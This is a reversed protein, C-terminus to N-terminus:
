DDPALAGLDILDPLHRARLDLDAALQVAGAVPVDGDRARGDADVQGLVEDGGPLARGSSVVGSSSSNSYRLLVFILTFL